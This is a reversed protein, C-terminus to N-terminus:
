QLHQQHYHVLGQMPDKIINGSKLNCKQLATLLVAQNLYAVSGIFHIPLSLANQYKLVMRQLFETFGNLLLHHIYFHEQNNTLFPMFTAVYANPTKTGYVNELILEKSFPFDQEFANKLDEPLERYYYAQLLKRGFWAGSGEDGLIFGLSPINDEIENGNFLCSNSGTGLICTIGKENGCTARAAALLDHEVAIINANFVHQLAEHVLAIKDPQSCGTGYYFICDIKKETLTVPLSDKLLAIIEEVSLYFPSIGATYFDESDNIGILKWHTKTAGSDAILINKM